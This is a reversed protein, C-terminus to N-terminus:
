PGFLLTYARTDGNVSIRMLHEFIQEFKRRNYLDTLPDHSAQYALQESLARAESMDECVTLITRRGDKEIQVRGTERVWLVAGDRRIKRTEWRQEMGTNALCKDLRSRTLAADESPQITVVNRGILETIEYGLHEAGFRNASRIVGDADLTFFMSPNDDYLSRYNEERKRLENEVSRRRNIEEALERNANEAARNAVLLTDNQAAVILSRLLVRRYIIATVSMAMSYVILMAGMVLGLEGGQALFWLTIPLMIVVLYPLYVRLVSGLTAAAGAALGGLAFTLFVQTEFSALSTFVVGTAGWIMGSLTSGMLFEARWRVMEEDAPRLRSYRMLRYTRIVTVLLLIALWTLLLQTPIRNWFVWIMLTALSVNVALGTPAHRYLFRIRDAEYSSALEPVANLETIQSVQSIM